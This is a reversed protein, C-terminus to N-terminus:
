PLNLEVKLIEQIKLKAHHYNAKLAGISTGTLESIQAFPMDQDYRLEFVLRQKEPLRDMAKALESEIRAADWHLGDDAAPHLYDTLEHNRFKKERQLEKIAQNRVITYCWTFLTSDGKFTHLNKWISIFANQLCDQALDVDKVVGFAVPLLRETYQEIIQYFCAEWQEQLLLSKIDKHNEM